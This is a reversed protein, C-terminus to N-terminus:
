HVSYIFYDFIGNFFNNDTYSQVGLELGKLLKVSSKNNLNEIEELYLMPDGFNTTYKYSLDLDYHDSIGITKMKNEESFEVIDQLSDHADPSFNTHIHLDFM